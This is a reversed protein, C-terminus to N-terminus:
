FFGMGIMCGLCACGAVACSAGAGLLGQILSGFRHFAPVLHSGADCGGPGRAEQVGAGAPLLSILSLPEVRNGVFEVACPLHSRSPPRTRTPLYFLLSFFGLRGVGVPRGFRLRDERIPRQPLCASILASSCSPASRSLADPEGVSRRRRAPPRAAVKGKEEM